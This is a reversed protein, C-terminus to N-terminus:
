PSLKAAANQSYGLTTLFIGLAGGAVIVIREFAPLAAQIDPAYQLLVFSGALLAGRLIDAQRGEVWGFDVALKVLGISLATLSVGFLVIDM